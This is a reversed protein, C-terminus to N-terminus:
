ALGKLMHAPVPITRKCYAETVIEAVDPKYLDKLREKALARAEDIPLRGKLGNCRFHMLCLNAQIIEGHDAVSKLHDVAAHYRDQLDVGCLACTHSVDWLRDLALARLQKLRRARTPKKKKAPAASPPRPPAPGIDKIYTHRNRPGEEDIRFIGMEALGKGAETFRPAMTSRVWYKLGKEHGGHTRAHKNVTEQYTFVGERNSWELLLRAVDLTTVRAGYPLHETARILDTILSM